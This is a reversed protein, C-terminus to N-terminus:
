RQRQPRGPSSRQRIGNEIPVASPASISALQLHILFLMPGILSSLAMNARLILIHTPLVAGHIVNNTHAFGLAVLLRRWIWAMDKVDIGKPYADHVEKLSYLGEGYSLVNVQRVIGSSQEKYSFADVLQSVFHRLKEYGNGGKLHKLIRTENMVLDNDGPQIPFKLLCCKKTGPVTSIGSIGQYLNCLDGDVLFKEITYQRKQTRIIFPTFTNTGKTTGYTGNEIRRQAQEWLRALKKFTTHALEFDTTGQYLDPHVTKAVQRFM